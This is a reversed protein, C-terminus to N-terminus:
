DRVSHDVSPNIFYFQVTSQLFPKVHVYNIVAMDTKQIAMKGNCFEWNKKRHHKKNSQGHTNKTDTKLRCILFNWKRYGTVAQPTKPM